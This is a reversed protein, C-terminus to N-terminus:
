FKAGVTAGFTRPMAYEGVDGFQVRTQYNWSKADTLNQGWVRLFYKEDPTKFTVSANIQTVPAQSLANGIDFYYRSTRRAAASFDVTLAELPVSYNITGTVSLKPAKILKNGTPDPATLGLDSPVYNGPGYAGVGPLFVFDNGRAFDSYEAHLLSAAIGISLRNTPRLTADLDVGYVEAAAANVTRFGGVLTIQSVQLDKYDYYFGTANFTLLGDFIRSRLGLSYANINEPEVPPDGPANANYSGSKFANDYRAYVSVDRSFEYRLVASYSLDNWRKAADGFQFDALVTGGRGNLIRLRQDLFEKEETTYRLEGSLIIQENAGFRYEGRGFAAFARTNLHGSNGVYVGAGRQDITTESEGLTIFYNIGALWSFRGTGTSTATMDFSIDETRDVPQGFVIIPASSGDLDTYQEGKYYRYSAVASLDFNSFSHTFRMKAGLSTQHSFIENEVDSATEYFNTGYQVGPIVSPTYNNLRVPQTYLGRDPGIKFYDATILVQDNDDM